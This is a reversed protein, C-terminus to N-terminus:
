TEHARLHTYSVPTNDTSGDDHICIEINKYTQNLASEISGVVYDECNFCPMYITVRPEPKLKPWSEEIPPLEMGPCLERNRWSGFVGTIGSYSFAGWKRESHLSWRRARQLVELMKHQLAADEKATDWIRGVYGSNIEELWDRRRPCVFMPIEMEQAWVALHLDVMRQYDFNTSDPM